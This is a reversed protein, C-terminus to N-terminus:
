CLKTTIGATREAMDRWRAVEIADKSSKTSTKDLLLWMCADAAGTATSLMACGAAVRPEHTIGAGRFYAGRCVAVFCPSGRPEANWPTPYSKGCHGEDLTQVCPCKFAVHTTFAVTTIGTRKHPRKHENQSALQVQQQGHTELITADDGTSSIQHHQSGGGDCAVRGHALEVEVERVATHRQVLSREQLYAVEVVNNGM